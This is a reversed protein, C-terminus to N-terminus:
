FYILTNRKAALPQNQEEQNVMSELEQFIRVMAWTDLKCYALLEKLKEVKIEQSIEIFLLKEYEVVAQAGNSISLDQYSLEPCLVPLVNKISYSGKFDDHLYEMKRFIEMLDFIRTNLSLLFDNLEPNVAALDRNCKGEFSKNWVIVNGHDGIDTRLQEAVINIPTSNEQHIFEKHEIKGSEHLIHLSYQFVVQQYPYTNDFKPIGCALTEYDLFYLPFQLDKMRSKIKDKEFVVDKTENVYKQLAHTTSLKIHEPIREILLHNDDVLTKLLKKSRGVARLDYISYSPVQPYLYHFAKCHRSRGKYRCSCDVPSPKLLLNKAAEIDALIEQELEICQTTIENTIFLQGPDIDGKKYFENNLELLYVNVVKLGAKQLIIRQFAADLLHEKKKNDKATSSKVEIIDWGDFLENWVLIDCSTFLDDTLFSAQFFEKQGESILKTTRNASENPNGTMLHAQPYLQRAFLEVEYGQSKLREVFPDEKEQSLVSKDKKWFWFFSPCEKYKLYDSKSIM